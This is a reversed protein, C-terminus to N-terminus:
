GRDDSDGTEDLTHSAHDILSACLGHLLDYVPVGRSHLMEIQKLHRAANALGFSTGATRM